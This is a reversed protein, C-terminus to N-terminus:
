SWAVLTDPVQATVLYHTFGLAVGLILLVGGVLIGCDRMVRPVDAVPRLDRHITTTVLLAYAAVIAAAEVPTAFGGFLAVLAIVPVLLEWKAAWLARLAKLRDFAVTAVAEKPQTRIGGCASVCVVLLGAPWGG